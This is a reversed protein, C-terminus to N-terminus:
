KVQVNLQMNNSNNPIPTYHLEGIHTHQTPAQFFAGAPPFWCTGTTHRWASLDQFM